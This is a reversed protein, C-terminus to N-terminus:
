FRVLICRQSMQLHNCVDAPSHRMELAQCILDLTHEFHTLEYARTSRETQIDAVTNLMFCVSAESPPPTKIKCNCIHRVHMYICAYPAFQCYVYWM